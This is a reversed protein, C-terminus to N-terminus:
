KKRRGQSNIRKTKTKSTRKRSPREAAAALDLGRKRGGALKARKAGADDHAQHIAETVERIYAAAEGETRIAKIYKDSCYRLPLNNEATQLHQIQALLLSSVPRNPNMANKSPRPVHIITM